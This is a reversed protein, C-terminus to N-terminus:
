LSNKSDGYNLGLYSKFMMVHDYIACIREAFDGILGTNVAKTLQNLNNGMYGIERRVAQRTEADLTPPSIGGSLLATKLLWPISRGSEIQLRKVALYEAETFRVCTSRSSGVKYLTQDDTTM